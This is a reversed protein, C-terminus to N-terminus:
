DPRVARVPASPERRLSSLAPWLGIAVGCVLSLVAAVAFVRLDLSAHEIKPISTPALRLFVKLLGWAFFVGLGGASIAFLISEAFALRALRAKSAGLAARMEFERSRAAIRALLLGSANVCVILLFVGSAALVLWATRSADGVQLDRLNRVRAKVPGALQPFLKAGADILPAIAATAQQATVGPKLRGITTFFRSSNQNPDFPRLQQPLFLDPEGLPSEFGPPLVGVVRVPKGDIQLM